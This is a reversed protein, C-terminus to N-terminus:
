EKRKELTDDEQEKIDHIEDRKQKDTNSVLSKKQSM